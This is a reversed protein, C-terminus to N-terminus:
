STAANSSASVSHVLGAIVGEVVCMADNLWKYREDDAEFWMVINQGKRDRGKAHQGFVTRGQMLFTVESGDPTTVLGGANPV